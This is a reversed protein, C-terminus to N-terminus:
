MNVLFAQMCIYTGVCMCLVVSVRIHISLRLFNVLMLTKGPTSSATIDWLQVKQKIHLINWVAVIYSNTMLFWDYFSTCMKSAINLHVKFMGSRPLRIIALPILYHNCIYYGHKFRRVSGSFWQMDILFIPIRNMLKLSFIVFLFAWSLFYVSRLPLFITYSSFLLFKDSM